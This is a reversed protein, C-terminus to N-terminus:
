AVVEARGGCGVRRRAQVAGGVLVIGAADAEDGVDLALARVGDDAVGEVSSTLRSCRPAAPESGSVPSPAPM